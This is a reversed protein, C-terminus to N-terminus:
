IGILVTRWVFINLMHRSLVLVIGEPTEPDESWEICEYGQESDSLVLKQYHFRRFYLGGPNPEVTFKISWQTESNKYAKKARMRYLHRYPGLGGYWYEALRM